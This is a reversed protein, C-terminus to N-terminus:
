TDRAVEVDDVYLIRNSGDCTLGVHHWDGDAIVTQSYLPGGFRGSSRLETMLEGNARDALLWNSTTTQSM